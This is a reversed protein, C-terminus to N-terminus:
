YVSFVTYVGELCDLSGRFVRFATGVQGMCLTRSGSERMLAEM